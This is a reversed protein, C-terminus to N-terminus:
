LLISKKRKIGWSQFTLDIDIDDSFRDQNDIMFQDGLHGQYNFIEDWDVKEANRMIFKKSLKSNHSLSQWDYEDTFKYRFEKIKRENIGADAVLWWKLRDGFERYFETTHKFKSIEHWDLYDAYERIFSISVDQSMIHWVVKEWDIDKIPTARLEREYVTMRKM